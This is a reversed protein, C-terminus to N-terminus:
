FFQQSVEGAAAQRVIHCLVSLPILLVPDDASGIGDSMVLPDYNINKCEAGDQPMAAASM